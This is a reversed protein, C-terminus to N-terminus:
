RASGRVLEVFRAFLEAEEAEADDESAGFLSGGGDGGSLREVRIPVRTVQGNITVHALYTGTPVMPAAGGRGGGGFGRGLVERFAGFINGMAGMDMEGGGEGQQGEGRAQGGAAPAPASEGPREVFRPYGVPQGPAGGRGGGGGGGFQAMLQQMGQPGGLMASRVRDLMPKPVTGEKELSDLIAVTRVATRVSDRIGAPTLAPQPAARGRMDWLVRHVGAGTAGTLTRLTDGKADTIAIRVPGSVTTGPAIRYAVEAGYAPSPASWVKHGPSEGNYIREGYQFATRPEFVHTAKAMTAPTMEQLPAIDVVWFSRGHTAAVLERDRPHIVLDHVPVTGLGTMFRQWSAGRDLSVYAGVDTGVFLLDRNVRDERIVHVFDPGGTPLNAAISRFSKGGDTTAYVYPTFDGRRHNDFTVYFTEADFHSPELRSVYTGAPVGPFRGTLNEWAGGGNRTIWVNGDDTGALLLGATVPSENLSVITSFTEAGTVDPTIGGTAKTSIRIAEANRTTLDPSIPTLGDGRQMSKFVRNAGAYFVDPNHPSLFFPTNWNWRIDSEISDARQRARLDALRKKQAPTEPRTTDGREIIISDEFQRYRPLWTPKVLATREGTAVNVRGM